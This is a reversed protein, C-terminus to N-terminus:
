LFLQEAEIQLDPLTPATSCVETGRCITVNEPSTYVYVQKSEPFIHWVVWKFVLMSTNM